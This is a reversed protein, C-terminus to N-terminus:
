SETITILSVLVQVWSEKHIQLAICSMWCIVLLLLSIVIMSNYSNWNFRMLGECISYGKIYLIYLPVSALSYPTIQGTGILCFEGQVFTSSGRPIFHKKSHFRHFILYFYFAQHCWSKLFFLIMQDSSNCMKTYWNFNNKFWSIGSLTTACAKSRLM